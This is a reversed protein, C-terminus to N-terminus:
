GISPMLRFNNNLEDWEKRLQLATERWQTYPEGKTVSYDGIQYSTIEDFSSGVVRAVSSLACGVLMLRKIIYPTMQKSILSDETHDQSLTDVTIHTSDPVNTIKALEFKGDFGIIEIYDNISFGTSSTVEINVSNGATVDSITTTQVSDNDM